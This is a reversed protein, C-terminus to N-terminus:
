GDARRRLPIFITGGNRRVLLLLINRTGGNLAQQCAVVDTVRKRDVEIIIDRPRL